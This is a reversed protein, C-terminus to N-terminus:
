WKSPAVSLSPWLDERILISSEKIRELGRFDTAWSHVTLARSAALTVPDERDQQRVQGHGDAPEHPRCGSQYLDSRSEACHPGGGGIGDRQGVGGPRRYLGGGARRWPADHGYAGY